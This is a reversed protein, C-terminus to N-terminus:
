DAELAEAILDAAFTVPHPAGATVAVHRLDPDDFPFDAGDHIDLAVM